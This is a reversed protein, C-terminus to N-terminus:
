IREFNNVNHIIFKGTTKQEQIFQPSILKLKDLQEDTLLDKNFTINDTNIRVVAKINIKIAIEYILCRMFSTIFSKFRYNKCYPKSKNIMQYNTKGNEIDEYERLMLYDINESDDYDCKFNNNVIEEESYYRKNTKSLYGWISSSLMKILGNTPHETKLKLLLNYWNYFINSSNTIKNERYVLANPEEDMILKIKIGFEKKYKRCFLIDYHTYYNDTNFQFLNNFDDNNSTIACHYIGYHLKTPLEKNIKPISSYYATYFERKEGEIEIQSALISPYAMKFDYGICNYEGKLCKNLGGNYTKNFWCYEAWSVPNFKDETWKTSSYNKFFRLINSENINKFRVGDKKIFDLFFDYKKILIPSNLLENRYILLNECYSKLIDKLSIGSELDERIKTKTLRSLEFCDIFENLKTDEIYEGNSYYIYYKHFKKCHYFVCYLHM